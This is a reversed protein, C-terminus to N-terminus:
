CAMVQVHGGGGYTLMEQDRTVLTYGFMRATAILIRDAPDGPPAGPLRTSAILVSPPMKALSVGPFACARDFWAQPDLALTIRNRETLMSVEWATIPSIFSRAGARSGAPLTSAAPERLPDGQAIWSVACTDLLVSSPM